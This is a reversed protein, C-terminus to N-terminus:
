ALRGLWLGVACAGLSLAVSGGVYLAATGLRGGEVLRLADLSFASFTTFGGLVGTLLFPALGPTLRVALLGILVLGRRQRGACGLAGALRSHVLYRLCPALAGGFAVLTLTYTM